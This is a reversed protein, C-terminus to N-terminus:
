YSYGSPLGTGSLVRSPKRNFGIRLKGIGLCRLTRTHRSSAHICPLLMRQRLRKSWSASPARSPTSQAFCCSSLASRLEENKAAQRRSVIPRVGQKKLKLRPQSPASHLLPLAIIFVQRHGGADAATERQEPLPEAQYLVQNPVCHFDM